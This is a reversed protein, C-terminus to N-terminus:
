RPVITGGMGPHIECIFETEGDPATFTVTESQGPDVGGTDIGLEESTFTHATEGDNTFEVTVEEGSTVELEAPEFANDVASLTVQEGGGGGAAPATGGTPESAGEDGGCAALGLLAVACLAVTKQSVSRKIDM